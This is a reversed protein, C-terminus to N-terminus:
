PIAEVYFDNALRHGPGKWIAAFMQAMDRSEWVRSDPVKEQVGDRPDGM